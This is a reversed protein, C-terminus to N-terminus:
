EQLYTHFWDLLETHWVVANQPKSVFHTEDPFFLLKSPIGQLQAASFAQLGETYPVRYDHEGVSILIPTTWRQVLKHPSKEYVGILKPRKDWYPGGMDYNVFFTEETAGYMSELNFMGNHAALAKFRNNHTGALYYVSYGGYSAGLAGLKAADVYSETKLADIASYYDQINQGGYDGSIQTLWAKGFTPVGRRNPAVVIYGQAALLQMNWRWSWFQSVASQPGGQCYLLAPYKKEPDFNPPFIIWTLMQKGDTTRIWREEVRGFRLNDYIHKNTTTIQRSISDTTSILFLEPAMSMSMCRGVAVGNQAVVGTYDHAGHTVQAVTGEGIGARYVQYTANVGSVFYLASNGDWCMTTAGEETDKTVEEVQGTELYLVMLRNKDSEYGPTAMSLWALKLGDPSILPHRDYGMNGETLNEATGTETDYRYIDSNTSVAYEKGVMKKSAYYIYRGAADWCVDSISFDSAMPTDWAEGENIDKEGVITGYAFGSVFIHCYSGNDWTDWHRYMLDSIVRVNAKPLHPYRETLPKGVQVNKVYLVRNGKPSFEFSKVGDSVDSLQKAEQERDDPKIEWIQASGSRDSIFRIAKGDASWRPNSESGQEDTLKVPVDEGGLSILYLNAVGKNESLNYHRVCYVIRSGDPSIQPDSVQGFKWLIEPTLIGRNKEEQTLQNDLQFLEDPKEGSCASLAALAM